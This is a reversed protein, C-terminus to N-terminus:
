PCTFPGIPDSSDSHGGDKTAFVFYRYACVYPNSFRFSTTNAPLSAIEYTDYVDGFADFSDVWVQYGDEVTSNDTWTLDVTQQDLAWGLDTPIAPPATCATNSPPSDGRSNFAIVRYCVQQEIVRGADSFFTVNADLVAAADWSAGADTSREVRFGDENASNDSWYAFVTSSGAPVARTRLPANPPVTAAAVSAVNSFDSFGADKKARVRYWYTTNNTLGGDRYSATNAALSAVVGYPGSESAARQVEYGDEVASNDRWAVAITTGDVGTATLTTPAAPPTTCATNSPPYDGQSNFAFVRYCLQQESMRAYDTFSTVNQGVTGAVTWTSGVDLSREVRFGDEDTSNDTWRVDVSTSNAPKTTTGSPAASPTTACAATSFASYSTKSDYARYARVEYCYQTAPTLGTDSYRTINAGTRAQLTFTGSPGTTSRHLEFGTENSSNDQWSVAIQIRSAPVAGTSSPANVTLGGTGSSAAELAPEVPQNRECALLSSLFLMSCALCRSRLVLM